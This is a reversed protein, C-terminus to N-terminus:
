SRQEPVQQNTQIHPVGVMGAAARKKEIGRRLPIYTDWHFFCDLPFWM